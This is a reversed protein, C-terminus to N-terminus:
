EQLPLTMVVLDDEYDIKVDFGFKRSLGIMGKNEPLTEGELRTTKRARTYRIMKDMLLSGLGQGKMSSDVIIAFEASSNDPRTSTRVVGLTIPEGRQETTAIFAMERDYDIQTFKPM